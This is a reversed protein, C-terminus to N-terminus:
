SVGAGQEPEAPVQIVPVQVTRRPVVRLALVLAVDWAPLLLRSLSQRDSM